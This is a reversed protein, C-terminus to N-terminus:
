ISRDETLSAWLQLARGTHVDLRFLYSLSQTSSLVSALMRYIYHLTAM